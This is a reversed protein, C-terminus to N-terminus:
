IIFGYVTLCSSIFVSIYSTSLSVTGTERRPDRKGFIWKCSDNREKYRMYVRLLVVGHMCVGGIFTAGHHLYLKTIKAKKKRLM